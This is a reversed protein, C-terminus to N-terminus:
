DSQLQHLENILDNKRSFYEDKKMDMIGLIENKKKGQKLLQLIFYDKDEKILEQKSNIFEIKDVLKKQRRTIKDRVLVNSEVKSSNEGQPKPLTAELGYQAISNSDLGPLQEELTNCMWKHDDIMNRIEDQTYM